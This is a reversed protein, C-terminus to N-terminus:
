KNKSSGTMVVLRLFINVIDMFVSMSLNIPDYVPGGRYDPPLTEAVKTIKQTNFLLMGSFLILGGYMFFSHLSAGFLTTPPLFMAGLGSALVLGSGIALPGAMRLFQESPACIAITSLGGVIGATYWAARILVPGGYFSLPALMAGVLSAFGAWCIQKPGFGPEYPLSRVLISSGTLAGFLLLNAVLNGSAFINMMAPSRLTAAAAAVAIVVSGGVYMYTTKIRDVVYQPWMYQKEIVGPANSLGLGYYCLTGLGAAGAGAVAAKGMTFATEPTAQKSRRAVHSIRDARVIRSTAFKRVTQCQIVSGFNLIGPSGVTITSKVLPVASKLVPM